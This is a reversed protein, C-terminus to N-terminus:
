RHKGSSGRKEAAWRRLGDADFRLRRPGFRIIVDSPFEGREVMAYVAARTEGLWDAVQGAKMLEPLGEVLKCAAKGM